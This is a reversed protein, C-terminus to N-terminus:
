GQPEDIRDRAVRGALRAIAAMPAAEPAALWSASFSLEPLVIGSAVEVLKGDAIPESAIAPPIVAVGLGDIALRVVTALSTSANLRVPPLDPNALLVRLDEYPSTGRAFTFIPHGAIATLDDHGALGLEPSAVFALRYLGLRENRM